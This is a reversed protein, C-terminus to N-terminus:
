GGASSSTSSTPTPLVTFISSRTPTRLLRTSSSRTAGVSEGYCSPKPNESHPVDLYIRRVEQNGQYIMGKKVRLGTPDHPEYMASGILVIPLPLAGATV